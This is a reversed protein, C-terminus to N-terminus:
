EYWFLAYNNLKRRYCPSVICICKAQHQRPCHEEEAALNSRESVGKKKKKQHIFLSGIQYCFGGWNVCVCHERPLDSIVDIYQLGLCVKLFQLVSM